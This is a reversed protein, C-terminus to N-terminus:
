GSDYRDTGTKRNNNEKDEMEMKKRKRSYEKIQILFCLSRKCLSRESGQM